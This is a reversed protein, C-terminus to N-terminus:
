RETRALTSESARCFDSVRNEKALNERVSFLGERRHIALPKETGRLLHVSEGNM